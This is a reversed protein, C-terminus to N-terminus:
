VEMSLFYTEFDMEMFFLLNEFNARFRRAPEALQFRPLKPLRSRRPSAERTFEGAEEDRASDGAKRLIAPRCNGM